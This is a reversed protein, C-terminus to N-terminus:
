QRTTDGYMMIYVMTNGERRIRGVVYKRRDPTYQRLTMKKDQIRQRYRKKKQTKDQCLLLSIFYLYDIYARHRRQFSIFIICHFFIHRSTVLTPEIDFIIDHHYEHRHSMAAATIHRMDYRAEKQWATLTKNAMPESMGIVSM